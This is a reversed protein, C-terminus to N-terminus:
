LLESQGPQATANGRFAMTFLWGLWSPVPTIRVQILISLRPKAKMGLWCAGLPVLHSEKLIGYRSAGDGSIRVFRRRHREACATRKAIQRYDIANVRVDHEGFSPPVPNIGEVSLHTSAFIM